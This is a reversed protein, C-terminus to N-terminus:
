LFTSSTSPTYIQATHYEPRITPTLCFYQACFLLRFCLYGAAHGPPCVAQIGLSLLFYFHTHELLFFPVRPASSGMCGRDILRAILCFRAILCVGASPLFCYYISVPHFPMVCQVYFVRLVYGSPCPECCSLSISLNIIATAVAM